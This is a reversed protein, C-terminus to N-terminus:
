KRRRDNGHQVHMGTGLDRGSSPSEEPGEAKPLTGKLTRALGARCDDCINGSFIPKKCMDCVFGGELPERTVLRKEEILYMINKRPVGTKEVLEGVGANHPNDDLYDRVKTFDSDLQDLCARCVRGGTTQFPKRCLKCQIINDLAM